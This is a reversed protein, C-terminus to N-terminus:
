GEQKEWASSARLALVLAGCERRCTKGPSIRSSSRENAASLLFGSTWASGITSPRVALRARTSSGLAIMCREFESTFDEDMGFRLCSTSRSSRSGMDALRAFNEGSRTRWNVAGFLGPQGSTLRAVTRAHDHVCMFICYNGLVGVIIILYEESPDGQIACTLM